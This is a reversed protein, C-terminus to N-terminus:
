ANTGGHVKEKGRTGWAESFRRAVEAPALLPHPSNGEFSAAADIVAQVLPGPQVSPNSDPHLLHVTWVGKGFLMDRDEIVEHHILEVAGARDILHKVGQYVVDTDEMWRTRYVVLVTAETLNWSEAFIVMPESARVIPAATKLATAPARLPM